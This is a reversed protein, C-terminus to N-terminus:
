EIVTGLVYSNPLACIPKLRFSRAALSTGLYLIKYSKTCVRFIL